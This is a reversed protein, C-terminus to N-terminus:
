KQQEDEDGSLELSRDDLDFKVNDLKRLRYMVFALLWFITSNISAFLLDSKFYVAISGGVALWFTIYTFFLTVSKSNNSGDLAYWFKIGNEAWDKIRDKIYNFM